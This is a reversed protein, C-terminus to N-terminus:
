ASVICILSDSRMNCGLIFFSVNAKAEAEAKQMEERHLVKMWEVEIDRPLPLGNELRSIIATLFEDKDRMEQQLKIAMAQKMSLEAVLAM